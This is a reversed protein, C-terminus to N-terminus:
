ATLLGYEASLKLYKEVKRVKDEMEEGSVATLKPDLMDLVAVLDSFEQAVRERNTFAQGPQVEDLGFRAAKSIRQAVEACEEMAITLLHEQRTM